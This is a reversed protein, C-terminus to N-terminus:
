VTSLLEVAEVAAASDGLPDDDVVTVFNRCFSIVDMAVACLEILENRRSLFIGTPSTGPLRRVVVLLSLIPPAPFFSITASLSFDLLISHRTAKSRAGIPDLHM